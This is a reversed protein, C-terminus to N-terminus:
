ASESRHAVAASASAADDVDIAHASSAVAVASVFSAAVATRVAIVFPEVAAPAGASSAAVFMMASAAVALDSGVDIESTVAGASQESVVGHASVFEAAASAADKVFDFAALGPEFAVAVQSCDSATEVLVAVPASAPVVAHVDETASSLALEAPTLAVHVSLAPETDVLVATKCEHEFRAVYALAATVVTSGARVIAYSPVRVLFVLYM